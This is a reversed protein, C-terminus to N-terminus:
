YSKIIYMVAIMLNELNPYTNHSLNILSQIQLIKNAITINHKELLQKNLNQIAILVFDYVNNSYQKIFDYDFMINSNLYNISDNIFDNNKNQLYDTIDNSSSYKVKEKICRSIITPLVSFLKNTTLVLLINQPPEELIKLFANSANITMNNINNIIIAKKNSIIPSLYVFDNINRITEIPINNDNPNKSIFLFDPYTNNKIHYINTNDIKLYDYIINYARELNAKSNNSYLLIGHYLM